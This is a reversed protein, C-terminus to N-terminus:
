LNTDIVANWDELKMGALAADAAIGANNVLIDIRGLECVAMGIMQRIQAPDRVDVQIAAARVGKAEIDTKVSKAMELNTGTIVVSDGHDAFTHAVALGIGRTSGTVVAVRNELLRM